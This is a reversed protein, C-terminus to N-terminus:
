LLTYVFRGFGLAVLWVPVALAAVGRVPAPITGASDWAPANARLALQLAALLTLGVAIAAIKAIFYENDAYQDVMMLFMLGGAVVQVGVSIWCVAFVLRALPALPVDRGFGLLRAALVIFAGVLLSHFTMHITELLQPAWPLAHLTHVFSLNALTSLM